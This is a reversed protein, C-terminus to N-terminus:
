EKVCECSVLKLFYGSVWATVTPFDSMANNNWYDLATKLSAPLNERSLCSSSRMIPVNDGAVALVSSYAQLADPSLKNGDELLNNM